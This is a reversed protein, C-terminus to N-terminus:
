VVGHGEWWTDTEGIGTGIARGTVFPCALGRLFGTTTGLLLIVVHM